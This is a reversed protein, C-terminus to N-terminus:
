IMNREEKPSGPKRGRRGCNFDANNKVGGLTRISGQSIFLGPSNNLTPRTRVSQVDDLLNNTNKSCPLFSGEPFVKHSSYSIYIGFDPRTEPKVVVQFHTKFHLPLTTISLSAFVNSFSTLKVHVDLSLQIHRGLEMGVRFSQVRLM